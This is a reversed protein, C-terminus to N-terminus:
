YPNPTVVRGRVCWSVHMRFALTLYIFLGVRFLYFLLLYYYMVIYDLIILYTCCRCRRPIIGDSHAIFREFLIWFFYDFGSM